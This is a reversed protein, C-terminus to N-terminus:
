DDDDGEGQKGSQRLLENYVGKVAKYRGGPNWTKNKLLIEFHKAIGSDGLQLNSHNVVRVKSFYEPFAARIPEKQRPKNLEDWTQGHLESCMRTTDYPTLYQVGHKVAEARLLLKQGTNRKRFVITRYIDPRHKFHMNAKKSLAFHSDAATASLVYAHGDKAIARIGYLMPWFCEFDTKSKCGAAVAYKMYAELKSSERPLWIPRFKVNLSKAANKALIFDRSKADEFTFSYAEVPIKLELCAFLVSNSDVGGSLLVGVSKKSHKIFELEDLLAGRVNPTRKKALSEDVKRRMKETTSTM